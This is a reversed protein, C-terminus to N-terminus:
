KKASTQWFIARALFTSAEAFRVRSTHPFVTRDAHSPAILGTRVVRQGAGAVHAAGAGARWGGAAALAAAM